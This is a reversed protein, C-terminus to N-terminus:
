FFDNSNSDGDICTILIYETFYFKSILVFDSIVSNRLKKLDITEPLLLKFTTIYFIEVYKVDQAYKVM